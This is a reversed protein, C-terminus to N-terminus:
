LKDQHNNTCKYMEKLHNDQPLQCCGRTLLTKVGAWALVGIQDLHILSSEVVITKLFQTISIM